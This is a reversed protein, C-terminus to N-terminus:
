QSYSYSPFLQLPPLSAQRNLVGERTFQTSEQGEQPRHSAGIAYREEGILSILADRFQAQHQAPCPTSPVTPFPSEYDPLCPPSSPMAVEEEESLDILSDEENFDADVPPQTLQFDVSDDSNLLGSLDAASLPKEAFGANRIAERAEPALQTDIMFCDEKKKLQSSIEARSADLSAHEVDRKTHELWQKFRMKKEVGDVIVEKKQQWEAKIEEMQRIAFSRINRLQSRQESKAGAEIFEAQQERLEELSINHFYDGVPRGRKGRKRQQYRKQIREQRNAVHKKVIDELVIAESVIKQVAELGRHTPSSLIDHYRNSVDRATDSAMPFRNEAPLLSSLAPDIANHTKLKKKLLYGVAPAETPPFIGSKEFGAIIHAATFGEEFIEKFSGAFDRRNFTLNGKRLAERLRKQHANKLWQFVGLDMPQLMHTSHPLLFAVLINFKICYERFAFSGHGSFGDIILLRWVLEEEEKGETGPPMDYPTIPNFESKLHENCGFWQEFDLQRHQVTASKEWSWRNFHKAWELTIEANSFATESQAFRMNPDGDIDSWEITPFAKFILWPPTTAGAANGTGIVTCTERDEPSFVETPTKKKTRVVLCQMRERLIGVRIGAQDANWCESAGIRYRTIVESLRKFWQKTEEVGAEEYEYRAAEKSKLISTDLEPHDDRFRRYSMRSVPQAHPDRRSRITNAADEIEGKSAPLGSKQMWIIFCVIAEEEADSLLRPRSNNPEPVLSFDATKAVELQKVIRAISSKNSGKYQRKADRISLPKKM